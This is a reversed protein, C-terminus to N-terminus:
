IIREEIERDYEDTFHTIKFETNFEDDKIIGDDSGDEAGITLFVEGRRTLSAIGENCPYKMSDTTVHCSVMEAEYRKCVDVLREKNTM